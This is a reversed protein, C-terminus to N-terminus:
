SADIGLDRAVAALRRDLTWIPTRAVVASTLLHADVWGIGRGYLRHGEILTMVEHHSAVPLAPLASLLDLVLTRQKLHGLSLEGSVFGHSAADGSELLSVLRANSRRLHDIWVSSDVLTM